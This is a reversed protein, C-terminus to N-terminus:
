RANSPIVKGSSDLGFVGGAPGHCECPAGLPIGKRNICTEQPTQCYGVKEEVSYRWWVFAALGVSIVIALVISGFLGLKAV